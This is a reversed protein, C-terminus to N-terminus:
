AKINLPLVPLLVLFKEQQFLMRSRHWSEWGEDFGAHSTSIQKAAFDLPWPHTYVYIHIKIYIIKLPISTDDSFIFIPLYSMKRSVQKWASSIFCCLFNALVSSVPDPQQEPKHAVTDFNISPCQKTDKLCLLSLLSFYSLTKVLKKCQKYASLRFALSAAGQLLILM